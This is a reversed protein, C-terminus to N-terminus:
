AFPKKLGSFDFFSKAVRTTETVFAPFNEPKTNIGRQYIILTSGAGEVNWDISLGNAAFFSLMEPTFLKRVKEEDTSLLRYKKAFQPRSAFEIKKRLMGRGLLSVSHQPAMEFQPLWADQRFAALTQSVYSKGVGYSYDFFSASLGDRNSSMINRFTQNSRGEFLPADLEPACPGRAWDEGEFTLGLQGAVIRLTETRNRTQARSVFSGIVGAAVIAVIFLWSWGLAVYHVLRV